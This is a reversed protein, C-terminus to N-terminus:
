GETKKETTGPNKVCPLIQTIEDESAFDSILNKDDRDESSAEGFLAYTIADFITTKGSGTNGTILFLNNDELKRFDINENANYPGFAKMTLKVPRM